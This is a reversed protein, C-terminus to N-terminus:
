AARSSDNGQEGKQNDRLRQKLTQMDTRGSEFMPKLIAHVKQQVEHVKEFATTGIGIGIGRGAYHKELISEPVQALFVQALFPDGVNSIAQGAFRRLADFPLSRCGTKAARNRLCDWTLKISDVDNGKVTTRVLPLHNETLLAYNEHNAPTRSVREVLMNALEPCLWLDGEVGTKTRLFNVFYEGNRIVIDSKRLDTIQRQRWGLCVGLLLYLRQGPASLKYYICLEELTFTPKPKTLREKEERSQSLRMMESKSVFFVSRLDDMELGAPKSWRETKKFWQFAQGLAQLWNRITMLSIPPQERKVKADNMRRMIPRATIISRFQQLQDFNVSALPVDPLHHRLSTVRQCNMERTKLALENRTRVWDCYQDLAQHLSLNFRNVPPPLPVVDFAALSRAPQQVTPLPVQNVAPSTQQLRQKLRAVAEDTWIVRGGEDREASGAAQEVLLLKQQALAADPGLWFTQQVLREGRRIFGKSTRYGYKTPTGLKPINTIMGCSRGRFSKVPLVAM